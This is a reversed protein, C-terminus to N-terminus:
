HSVHNDGQKTKLILIEERIDQFQMRVIDGNVSIRESVIDIREDAIKLREHAIDIAERNLKITRMQVFIIIFLLTDVIVPLFQFLLDM